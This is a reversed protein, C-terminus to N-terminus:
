SYDLSLFVRKPVKRIGLAIPAPHSGPTGLAAPDLRRPDFLLGGRFVLPRLWPTPVSTRAHQGSDQQDIIIGRDQLHEGGTKAAEAVADGHLV